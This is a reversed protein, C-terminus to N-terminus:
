APEALEVVFATAIKAYDTMHEKDLKDITDESSHLVPNTDEFRSEAPIVARYGGDTWSAHDSCGYGCRTYKVPRKTYTVILKELFATLEKDVNDDIIWITKQNKFAYGTMDFHMVADIPIHKETFTDVVSQSGVLGDEEAAYWIFYVPKKFHMGSALVTRMTEMITMSGSGDDDAGPKREWSSATTDMHAGVVVGAQNGQGIKVVVSPQKYGPTPITYISIDDRGAAMTQAQTQIWNAAAVGEKSNAYRDKSSSFTTLNAWMLDPNLQGILQNAETQYRIQYAEARQKHMDNRRLGADLGYNKVSWRQTVDVFGGCKSKHKADSLQNLESENVRIVKLEGKTALVTPSIKAANILCVPASVIREGALAVSSISLAATIALLKFSYHRM